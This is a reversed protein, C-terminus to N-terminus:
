LLIRKKPIIHQYKTYINLAKLFLLRILGVSYLPGNSGEEKRKKGEPTEM